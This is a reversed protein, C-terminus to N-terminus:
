LHIFFHDHGQLIIPVVIPIRQFEHFYQLILHSIGWRLPLLVAPSLPNVKGEVFIHLWEGRQLVQRALALGPQHLGHGRVVPLVKGSLFFSSACRWFLNDLGKDNDDKPDIPTRFLIEHAGLTWRVKEKQWLQTMPQFSWMVPDDLTSIHNSFTILPRGQRESPSSLLTLFNDLSNSNPTGHMKLKYYGIGKLLKCITAVGLISWRSATPLVSM